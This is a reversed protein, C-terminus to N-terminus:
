APSQLNHVMTLITRRPLYPVLSALLRNRGGTVVVRTNRQLGRYGQRAVSASSMPTGVRSLRTKGTGARERFNSVTPGPCLCSVHVGTGEAEKWLAESFSLVFAKTAYYIAMLPGPQFAATSAVNLVGGCKNALMRPWYIHTLEVLARVNLDVMGLQNAEDSGAFAGATGYGANNVLVDVSKGRTAIEDALKRGAGMAGLDIAIPTALVKYKESLKAAVDNLASESRAALILDYGDKAFCEALDVGIGGSAGTVLVTQGDGRRKRAM